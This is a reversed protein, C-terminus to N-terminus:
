REVKCEFKLTHLLSFHYKSKIKKKLIIPLMVLCHVEISNVAKNKLM